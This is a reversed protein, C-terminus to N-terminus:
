IEHNEMTKVVANRIAQKVYTRTFRLDCQPWKPKKEANEPKRLEGFSSAGFDSADTQLETKFNKKKTTPRPLPCWRM